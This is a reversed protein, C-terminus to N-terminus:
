LLLVTKKRDSVLTLPLLFDLKLAFGLKCTWSLRCTRRPLQRDSCNLYSLGLCKPYGPLLRQEWYNWTIM